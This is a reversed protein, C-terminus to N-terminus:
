LSPGSDKSVRSTASPRGSRAASTPPRTHTTGGTTQSPNLKSLVDSAIQVHARPPGTGDRADRESKRTPWRWPIPLRGSATGRRAGSRVGRRGRDGPGGRRRRRGALERGFRRGHRREVGIPRQVDRGDIRAHQRLEVRGALVAEDVHQSPEVALLTPRGGNGVRRHRRPRAPLRDRLRQAAVGEAQDGVHRDVPLGVDIARVVPAGRLRRLAGVRRVAAVAVDRAHEVDVPQHRRAGPQRQDRHHVAGITRVEGVATAALEAQHIAERIELRGLGPRNARRPQRHRDVDHERQAVVTRRALGDRAAERACRDGVIRRGLREGVRQM